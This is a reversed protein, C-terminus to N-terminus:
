PTAEQPHPTPHLSISTQEHTLMAALGMLENILSPHRHVLDAREHMARRLSVGTRIRRPAFPEPVHLSPTLRIM